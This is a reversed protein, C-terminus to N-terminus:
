ENVGVLEEDLLLGWRQGPPIDRGSFWPDISQVVLKLWGRLATAVLLSRDGSWSIFVRNEKSSM